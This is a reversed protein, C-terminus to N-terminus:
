IRIILCAKIPTLAKDRFHLIKSSNAQPQPVPSTTNKPSICQFSIWGRTVSFNEIAHNTLNM